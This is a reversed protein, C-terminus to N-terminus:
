PACTARDPQTASPGHPSVIPECDDKRGAQLTEAQTKTHVQMACTAAGTTCGASHDAREAAHSHWWRQRLWSRVTQQRHLNTLVWVRSLLQSTPPRLHRPRSLCGTKLSCLKRHKAQLLLTRQHAYVDASGCHLFANGNLHRNVWGRSLRAVLAQLMKRLVARVLLM